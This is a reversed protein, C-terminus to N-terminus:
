GAATGSARAPRKYLRTRRYSLVGYVVFGVIVPVFVMVGGAIKNIEPRVSTLWFYFFTPGVVGVLGLVVGAYMLLVRAASTPQREIFEVQYTTIAQRSDGTSAVGLPRILWTSKPFLPIWLFTFWVTAEYVGDGAARHFLLKTGIGNRTSTQM